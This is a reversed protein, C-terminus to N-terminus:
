ARVEDGRGDYGPRELEVVFPAGHDPCRDTRVRRHCGCEYAYSGGTERVAAQRAVLIKPRASPWDALGKMMDKVLECVDFDDKADGYDDTDVVVKVTVDYKM